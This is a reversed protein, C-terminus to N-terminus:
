TGDLAALVELSQRLRRGAARDRASNEVFRSVIAAARWDRTAAFWQAARDFDLAKALARRHLEGTGAEWRRWAAVCGSDNNAQAIAIALLPNSHGACDAQLWAAVAQQQWVAAEAGRGQRLYFRALSECVQQRAPWHGVASARNAAKRLLSEALDERCATELLLALRCAADTRAFLDDGDGRSDSM